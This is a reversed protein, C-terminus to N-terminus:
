QVISRLKKLESDFEGKKRCGQPQKIYDSIVDGSSQRKLIQFVHEGIAVVTQPRDHNITPLIYDGWCQSVIQERVRKSPKTGKRYLAVISADQLWVGSSRLTTLVEIKYQIRLRDNPEEKKLIRANPKDTCERLIKWFQWTGRNNEVTARLLSKEGYALCYVLRVFPAPPVARTGQNAYNLSVDEDTYVHSEALLLVRVRRPKWYQRHEDVARIAGIPEPHFGLNRTTM